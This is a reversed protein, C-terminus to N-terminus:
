SPVLSCSTFAPTMLPVSPRHLPHELDRNCVQELVPIRAPPQSSPRRPKAQVDEERRDRRWLWFHEQSPLTTLCPDKVFREFPTADRILLCSSLPRWSSDVRAPESCHVGTFLEESCAPRTSPQARGFSSVLHKPRPTLLAQSTTATVFCSDEVPPRSIHHEFHQM